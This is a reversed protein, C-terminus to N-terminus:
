VDIDIVAGEGGSPSEIELELPRNALAETTVKFLILGGRITNDAAPTDKAPLIEGPQLETPEYVFDNVAPDLEIPEFEDGQTDVIKFEEATPQPEDRDNEVRMFIGYWVEDDAPEEEGEAMGQLYASDDLAAPNLIRSIQIQYKLDDVTVYIGETEALTVKDHKNGCGAAALAALAAVCLLALRAHRPM